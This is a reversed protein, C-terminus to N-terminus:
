PQTKADLAELFTPWRNVLSEWRSVAEARCLKRPISLLNNRQKRVNEEMGHPHTITSMDLIYIAEAVGVFARLDSLFSHMQELAVHPDLSTGEVEAMLTSVKLRALETNSYELHAVDKVWM